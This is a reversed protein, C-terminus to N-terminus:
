LTDKWKVLKVVKGMGPRNGERRGIEFNLEDRLEDTIWEQEELWCLYSIPISHDTTEKNKHKGFSLKM